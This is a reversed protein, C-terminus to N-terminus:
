FILKRNRQSLSLALFGCKRKRNKEPPCFVDENQQCKLNVNAVSDKHAMVISQEILLNEQYNTMKAFIMPGLFSLTLAVNNFM